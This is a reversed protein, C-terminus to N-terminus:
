GLLATCSLFSLWLHRRGSPSLRDMQYRELPLDAHALGDRLARLVRAVMSKNMNFRGFHIRGSAELDLGQAAIRGAANRM